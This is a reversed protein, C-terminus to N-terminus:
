KEVRNQADALVSIRANIQEVLFLTILHGLNLDAHIKEGLSQLYVLCEPPLFSTIEFRQRGDLVLSCAVFLGVRTGQGKHPTILLLCYKALRSRIERAAVEGRMRDYPDRKNLIPM